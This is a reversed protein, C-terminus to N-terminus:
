VRCLFYVSDAVEEYMSFVTDRIVSIKIHNNHDHLFLLAAM